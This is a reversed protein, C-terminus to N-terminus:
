KWERDAVVIEPGGPYRRHVLRVRVMSLEKGFRFRREDAVDPMLRKAYTWRQQGLSRGAHDFGHLELALEREIWGTPVRHGVDRATVQAVFADGEIWGHLSLSRRLMEQQSGDWFSHSGLTMPDRVIGGRGPAINAMKGTPKM